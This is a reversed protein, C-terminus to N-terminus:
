KTDEKLDKIYDEPTTERWGMNPGSLVIISVPSVSSRRQAAVEQCKEPYDDILFIVQVIVPNVFWTKRHMRNVEDLKSYTRELSVWIRGAGKIMLVNM